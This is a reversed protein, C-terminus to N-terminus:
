LENKTIILHSGIVSDYVFVDKKFGEDKLDCYRMSCGSAKEHILEKQEKTVLFDLRIKAKKFNRYSDWFKWILNNFKAETKLSKLPLQRIDIFINTM